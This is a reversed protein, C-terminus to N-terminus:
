MDLADVISALLGGGYRSSNLSGSKEKSPRVSVSSAAGDAESKIVRKLVGCGVVCNM